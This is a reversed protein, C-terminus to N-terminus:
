NTSPRRRPYYVGFLCILGAFTLAFATPEPVGTLAEHFTTAVVLNDIRTTANATDQRLAYGQLAQNVAADTATISTSAANVPNVWLSISGTSFSYAHVIRYTTGFSLPASWFAEGDGDTISPDGSLALSFDGQGHRTIWVRNNFTNGSTKMHAFYTDTLPNADTAAVVVDFGAYVTDGAQLARFNNAWDVNLDERPIGTGHLLVAAGGSVQIPTLGGASHDTWNSGVDPSVGNLAGNTSFDDAAIITASAYSSAFAIVLASAWIFRVSM